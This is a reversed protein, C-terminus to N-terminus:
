WRRVRKQTNKDLQTWTEESLSSSSIDLKTLKHCRQLLQLVASETVQTCRRLNLWHLQPCHESLALIGIDTVDTEDTLYLTHIHPCAHVLEILATDTVTKPNYLALVQLLPNACCLSLIDEALCDACLVEIKTLQKCHRTLLPIYIPVRYNVYVSTLGTMYPLLINADQWNMFLYDTNLQRILSLAHSCRRAIDATPIIPINPINLQKLHLKYESLAILSNYTIPCAPSVKLIELKPCHQAIAIVAADDVTTCDLEISTLESCAQVICLILPITIVTSAIEIESLKWRSLIDVTIWNKFNSSSRITLQKVNGTCVSLQEMVEKSQNGKINVSRVKGVMDNELLSECSEMTINSQIHLDLENVKINQVHLGPNDGPLTIDLM